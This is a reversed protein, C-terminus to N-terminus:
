YSKVTEYLVNSKQTKNVFLGRLNAVMLWRVGCEVVVNVARCQQAHIMTTTQRLYEARMPNNRQWQWRVGGGIFFTSCCGWRM